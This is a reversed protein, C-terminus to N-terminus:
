QITSSCVITVAYETRLFTKREKSKFTGSWPQSAYESLWPWLIKRQRSREKAHFKTHCRRCLTVLNTIRNDTANMNIHHVHLHEMSDCVVCEHLDREKVVKRARVFMKINHPAQQNMWTGDRFTPNKKGKMRTSHLQAACTRGCTQPTYSNTNTQIMKGCIQCPITPWKERSKAMRKKKATDKCALSCYLGQKKHSCITGCEKCPQGIKGQKENFHNCACHNSCYTQSLGRKGMKTMEASSRVIQKECRACSVIVPPLNIRKGGNGKLLSLTNERLKLWEDKPLPLGTFGMQRVIPSLRSTEGNLNNRNM